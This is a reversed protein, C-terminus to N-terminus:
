IPSYLSFILIYEVLGFNAELELQKSLGGLSVSSSQDMGGYGVAGIGFKVWYTSLAEVMAM